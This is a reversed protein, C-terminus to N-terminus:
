KHYYIFFIDETKSINKISKTCLENRFYSYHVIIFGLFSFIAIAAKKGGDKFSFKNDM